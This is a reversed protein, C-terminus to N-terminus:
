DVKHCKLIYDSVVLQYVADGLFELREYFKLDQDPHENVYSAQTFAEDLLEENNFKINYKDALKNDFEKQM